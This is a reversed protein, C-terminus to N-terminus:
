LIMDIEDSQIPNAIALGLNWKTSSNPTVLRTKHLVHFSKEKEKVTWLNESVNCHNETKRLGSCYLCM